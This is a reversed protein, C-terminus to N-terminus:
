AREVPGQICAGLLDRRALREKALEETRRAKTLRKAKLTGPDFFVFEPTSTADSDTDVTSLARSTSSSYGPRALLTIWTYEKKCM